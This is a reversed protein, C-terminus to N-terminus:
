MREAADGLTGQNDKGACGKKCWCLPHKRMNETSVKAGSVIGGGDGGGGAGDQSLREIIQHMNGVFSYLFWPTSDLYLM